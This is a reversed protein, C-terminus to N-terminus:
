RWPKANQAHRALRQTSLALAPAVLDYLWAYLFNVPEHPRGRCGLLLLFHLLRHLVIAGLAIWVTPAGCCLLALAGIWLLTRTYQPLALLRRIWIPYLRRALLAALRGRAYDASTAPPPGITHGNPHTAACANAKTAVGLVFLDGEGGSLHNYGAFGKHDFFVQRRFALNRREGLYPGGSLAYGLACLNGWREDAAALSPTAGHARSLTSHGLVIEVGPTFRSALTSLWHPSAPRCNAETLVVWEGQAAKVGVTLALKRASMFRQTDTTTTVRLPPYQARLNSLQPVREGPESEDVVVVEYTPYDQQLFLPLNEILEELYVGACIVVSIMPSSEPKPYSRGGRFLVPCLVRCLVITDGLSLICLAFLLIAQVTSLQQFWDSLQPM